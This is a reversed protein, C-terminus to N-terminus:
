VTGSPVAVEEDFRMLEDGFECEDERTWGWDDQDITSLGIAAQEVEDLLEGAVEGPLAGKILQMALDTIRQPNIGRATAPFQAQAKAKGKNTTETDMAEAEVMNADSDLPNHIPTQRYPYLRAQPTIAHPSSTILHASPPPITSQYSPVLNVSPSYSPLMYAAKLAAQVTPIAEMAMLLLEDREVVKDVRSLSSEWQAPGRLPKTCSAYQAPPPPDDTRMSEDEEVVTSLTVPVFVGGGVKLKAPEGDTDADSSVKYPSEPPPSIM